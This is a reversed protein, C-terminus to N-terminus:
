KTTSLSSFSKTITKISKQALNRQFRAKERCFINFPFNNRYPLIIKFGYSLPKRWKLKWKSISFYKVQRSNLRIYEFGHIFKLSFMWRIKCTCAVKLFTIANTTNNFSSVRKTSGNFTERWRLFAFVRRTLVCNVGPMESTGHDVKPFTSRTM